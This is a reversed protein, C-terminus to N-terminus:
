EEHTYVLFTVEEEIAPRGIVLKGQVYGSIKQSPSPGSVLVSLGRAMEHVDEERVVDSSVPCIIFGYKRIKNRDAITQGVRGGNVDLEDSVGSM